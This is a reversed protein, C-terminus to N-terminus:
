GKVFNRHFFSSPSRSKLSVDDWYGRNLAINWTQPGSGDVEYTM